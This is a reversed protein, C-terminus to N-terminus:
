ANVVNKTQRTVCKNSGPGDTHGCIQFHGSFCEEELPVYIFINVAM